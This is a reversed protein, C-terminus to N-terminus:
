LESDLLWTSQSRHAARAKLSSIRTFGRDM